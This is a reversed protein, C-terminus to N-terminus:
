DTSGSSVSCWEFDVLDNLNKVFLVCTLDGVWGSTPPFFQLGDRLPQFKINHMVGLILSSILLFFILLKEKKSMEEHSNKNEIMESWTEESRVLAEQSFEVNGQALIKLQTSCVFAADCNSTVVSSTLVPLERVEPSHNTVICISARSWALFFWRGPM